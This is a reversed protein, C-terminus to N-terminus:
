ILTRLLSAVPRETFSLHAPRAKLRVAQSTPSALAPWKLAVTRLRMRALRVLALRPARILFDAPLIAAMAGSASIMAAYVDAHRDPTFAQLGELLIAAAMLAGGALLPRRWIFCFTLTLAFYGCFHDVRWGFSSRPIWKEPGLAAFILLFFAAVSGLKLLTKISMRDDRPLADQPVM